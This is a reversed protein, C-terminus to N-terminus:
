QGINREIIADEGLSGREFSDIQNYENMYMVWPGTIKERYMMDGIGGVPILSVDVRVMDGKELRDGNLDTFTKNVDFRPELEYPDSARVVAIEEDKRDIPRLVEPIVQAYDVKKLSEELVKWPDLKGLGSEDVRVPELAEEMTGRVFEKMEEESM